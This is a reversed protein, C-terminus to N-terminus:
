ATLAAALAEPATFMPWHGADLEAVDDWAPAPSPCRTCNLYRRPVKPAGIAIAQEFTGIPHGADHARIWARQEPTLDHRGYYADLQEDTMFPIRRGGNAAAEMAARYEPGGADFLSVGDQPVLADLYVVRALREPAREAVGGAVAGAYSHGVLVVDTLDYAALTAIVDTIHTDLNTDPTALHAREGLGTLTLAHVDHGGARLLATVRSWAAGGLCAGPVLAFTTM